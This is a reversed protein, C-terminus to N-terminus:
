SSVSDDDRAYWLDPREKSVAKIAEVYTKDPHGKQYEQVAVEFDNAASGDKKSGTVKMAKAQIEDAKQYRTLEAQAVAEGLKEEKTALEEALEEPKGEIAKFLGTHKQYKAVLADHKLKGNENELNTIRTSMKAFEAKMEGGPAATAAKLAEIAAVLDAVPTGPEMGLAAAIAALDGEEQFAKVIADINPYEGEQFKDAVDKVSMARIDSAAMEALPGPLNKMVRGGKPASEAQGKLWGCVRVPDTIGPKGTLESVCADFGVRGAWAILPQINGQHEQAALARVQSEVDGAQHKSNRKSLLTEFLDDIQGFLGRFFPAGRLGKVADSMRARIDKFQSRLEEAPIDDGVMFTLVRAGQRQGGFVLARDLTAAAVAPEEAGLMAVGTVVPGFDGIADEIEVSVTSYQGGEILNAIPEPVHDFTAVLLHGLKELAIMNGLSIQGQGQEGTVIGVPIDLAEAIMSNFADSTHGAKLPVVAPVHAIFAEVMRDLDADAWERTQGASDTHKGTAFITVNAVTKMKPAQYQQIWGFRSQKWGEAEAVKLAAKYAEPEYVNRELQRAYEAAMVAPFPLGDAMQGPWAGTIKHELWACFGEPSSKDQNKSVCEDFSGYPGFPM